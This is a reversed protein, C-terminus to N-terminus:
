GVSDGISGCSYRAFTPFSSAKPALHARYCPAPYIVKLRVLDHQCALRTIARGPIGSGFRM